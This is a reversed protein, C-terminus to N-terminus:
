SIVSFDDSNITYSGTSLQEGEREVMFSITDGPRLILRLDGIDYSRAVDYEQGNIFLARVLDGTRIGVDSAISGSAVESVVIDEYLKGSGAAADYIYRSNQSTVTIGLTPTLLGNTKDDGDNAHFLINEVSGRVVQVPIAYNINQDVENGGNTIGILQGNLDFLGGGSNGSYIATDIRLM